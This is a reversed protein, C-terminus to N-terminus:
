YPGDFDPEEAVGNANLAISELEKKEKLIKKKRVRPVSQRGMISIENRLKEIEANLDDREKSLQKRIDELDQERKILNETEKIKSNAELFNRAETQLTRAGVIPLSQVQGDTLSAFEEVTFVNAAKLTYVDNRSLRAWQELLYGSTAVTRKKEFVEYETRWKQIDAETAKRAGPNDTNGPVFKKIWIQPEWVQIGLQKSKFNNLVPEEFFVVRVGEDEAGKEFYKPNLDIM